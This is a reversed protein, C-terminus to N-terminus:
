SRAGVYSVYYFFAPVNFLLSDLRDLLGGHGPILTGTDKTGLSRKVVSEALDGFQGVVGLLFGAAVVRGLPWGPLLWAGLGAAAAVSVVLQAVAGEVTKRPSIVPALQHRGIASGVLYAASEGAWTLGVVFLVLDAGDAARYLLLGHGLLWGVWTVGFLTNAVPEVAPPASMWVPASAVAFVALTFVVAPAGELAFSATVASTAALGLWRYAPRGAQEFMRALEWSAAASVAVVLAEFLPAPARAVLWAFAPILVIASAFRKLWAATSRGGPLSPTAVAGTVVDVM